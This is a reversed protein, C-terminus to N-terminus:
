RVIDNLLHLKRFLRFRQILFDLHNWEDHKYIVEILEEDTFTYLYYDDNILPISEESVDQL